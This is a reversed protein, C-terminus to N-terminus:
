PDKSDGILTVGRTLNVSRRACMKPYVFTDLLDLSESYDARNVYFVNTLIKYSLLSDASYVSALEQPNSLSNTSHAPDLLVNTYFCNNATAENLAYLHSVFKDSKFNNMRTSFGKTFGGFVLKGDINVTLSNM